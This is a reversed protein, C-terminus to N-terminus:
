RTDGARTPVHPAGLIDREDTSGLSAGVMRAVMECASEKTAAIASTRAYSGDPLEVRIEAGWRGTAPYRDIDFSIRAGPFRRALLAGADHSTTTM